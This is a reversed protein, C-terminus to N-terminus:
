FSNNNFGGSGGFSDSSGFGGFGDFSEFGGGSSEHISSSDFGYFNGKIDVAGIMPLGNAPNIAMSMDEVGHYSDNSFSHMSSDRMSSEIIDDSLLGLAAGTAFGTNLGGAGISTSSKNSMLYDDYDHGTPLKLATAIFVIAAIVSAVRLVNSVDIGYLTLALFSVMFVVLTLLLSKVLRNM